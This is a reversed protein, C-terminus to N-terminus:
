HLRKRDAQWWMAGPMRGIRFDVRIPIGWLYCPGAKAAQLLALPKQRPLVVLATVQALERVDWRGIALTDPLKGHEAKYRQLMQGMHSLLVSSM